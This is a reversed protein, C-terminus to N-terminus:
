ALMDDPVGALMTKSIVHFAARSMDRHVAHATGPPATRWKAVTAEAVDTMISGYRLLEDHRFLPAAAGRQWRWERGESSIIANGFMPKLVEVQVAGKPFETHRSLLLTKVLESGSFFAMRPPGPAIVLPERYAQEPIIELNNSLLKILNAPFRLPKVAPKVFPPYLAATVVNTSGLVHGGEMRMPGLVM